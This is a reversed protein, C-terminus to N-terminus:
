QRWEGARRALRAETAAIAQRTSAVQDAPADHDLRQRLAARFHDLAESLRGQDFLSKGLHQHAFYAYARARLAVGAGPPDADPEATTAGTEATAAYAEASALVARFFGDAEGFRRQWQLVVALRLASGLAELPLSHSPASGEVGGAPGPRLEGAPGGTRVLARRAVDEAAALEGLVRM